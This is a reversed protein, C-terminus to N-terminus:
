NKDMDKFRKLAVRGAVEVPRAEPFHDKMWIEIEGASGLLQMFEATTKAKTAFEKIEEITPQNRMQHDLIASFILDQIEEETKGSELIKEMKDFLPKLREPIKRSM